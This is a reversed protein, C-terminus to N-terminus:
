GVPGRRGAAAAQPGSWNGVLRRYGASGALLERHTGLAPAPTDMLLVRDARQASSIRHAIVILTGPRRHFADEVRAEAAPDLHCTAEDLVVLRAPSLYARVLAVLQREGASLRTSDVAADLGGLRHLLGDLGLLQATRDLAASGAGPCLYGLNERLTGGFVYAEQPILVRAAHLREASLAALPAGGLRITGTGPATLGALLSALTSKGIGSPGVVALHEGDAVTLSLGDLVPEAQPHYAFGVRDLELGSGVPVAEALPAPPSPPPPPASAEALRDLAVTLRLGSAGLGQVLTRLAPELSVTLYGLAGVVDGASLGGRVLRPADLLILAVPLHVGLAVALRRVTGLAALRTRARHQVEIAAELATGSRRVAGCAVVDRLAGFTDAALRAFDEEARLLARQRRALPPLTGSFVLLALALPIGILPLLATGLSAAGILVFVATVAFQRVILLQGAVSDRVTEIQRTLRSLAATDPPAPDAASSRLTADVVRRTLADRLPEVVDALQPYVQRSGLAGLVTVAGFALLWALGTLPRGALFGADLAQAILRGSLAAPLAEAATWATM